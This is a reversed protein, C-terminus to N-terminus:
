YIGMGICVNWNRLGHFIGWLVSLFVHPLVDLLKTLRNNIVFHLLVPQLGHASSRKRSCLIALGPKSTHKQASTSRRDQKEPVSLVKSSAFPLHNVDSLLGSKMLAKAHWKSSFRNQYTGELTILHPVSLYVLNRGLVQWEPSTQERSTCAFRITAMSPFLDTPSPLTQRCRAEVESLGLWMAATYDQLSLIYFDLEEKEQVPEVAHIPPLSHSLTPYYKV